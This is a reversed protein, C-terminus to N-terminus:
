KHIINYLSQQEIDMQLITRETKKSHPLTYEIEYMNHTLEAARKPSFNIKHKCLLRELEKYITYAVFAICIHAEIRKQRYHYIPRIRLDTKSIRFAKEIQWLHGYNKIVNKARLRTNTIYGKLGDWSEDEKIKSKDIKIDVSGELILFKNYGRNNLNEKTLKGTRVRKRLKRLGRERNHQDKKARKQSYSVILRAGAPKKLVFNQGDKIGKSKTLIKSKIKNTENKLRAGIIFEYEQETLDDLNQKSLLAADAIVIPKKFGYKKQIKKLTPLLTHGEFTDGCFVDYGIPYGNQGVLLGLMIQPQQFKGDKSFGIKRLDDEDETEFYLTTLDYFVVSIHKLTQKTYEFAVQEVKEKYSSRLTDLFRYIAQANTVLGKYRYLYDVTKLKSTPYALRAITLHRFLKDPIIDFGIREFLVGFILEPGITHVQLNSMKEVFNKIVLDDKSLTSFLPRQHPPYAIRNKAELMLKEIENPEKSSGITEILRYKGYEKSIIQVSVSGSSNHKKRIFMDENYVVPCGFQLPQYSFNAM